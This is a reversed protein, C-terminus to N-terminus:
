ALVEPCIARSSCFLFPLDVHGGVLGGAVADDVCVLFPFADDVDFLLEIDSAGGEVVHKVLCSDQWGSRVAAFFQSAVGFGEGREVFYEACLFLVFFLEFVLEGFCVDCDGVVDFSAGALTRRKVCLRQGGLRVAKM